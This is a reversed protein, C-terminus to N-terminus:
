CFIIICFLFSDANLDTEYNHFVFYSGTKSAPIRSVRRKLTLRVCIVINKERM